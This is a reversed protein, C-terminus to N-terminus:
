WARTGPPACSRPGPPSSADFGVSQVFAFKEMLTEGPLTNEAAALRFSM